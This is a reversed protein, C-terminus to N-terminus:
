PSRMFFYVVPATFVISDVMDLIGGFGPIGNSDKVSADRKLVSEALDGVQSLIGLTMGLWVANYWSIFNSNGLLRFLLSMVLAFFFGGLAGEVTKLPSLQRALPHKGWLRGILYGGIDTIKTVVILYFLWWRGDQISAQHPYLIALMFSFPIALYCVGFFEVAVNLLANELNHFRAVFFLILSFTMNILALNSWNPYTLSIYFTGIQLIAVTVMLTTSPNLNKAKALQAYEWIGGGTLLFITLILLLNVWLHYSFGILLGVIIVTVSSIMLRHHLEEKSSRLM